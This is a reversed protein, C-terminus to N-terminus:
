WGPELCGLPLPLRRAGQSAAGAASIAEVEAAEACPTANLAVLRTAEDLLVALAGSLKQQQVKRPM